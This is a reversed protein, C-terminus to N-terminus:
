QSLPEETPSDPDPRFNGKGKVANIEETNM